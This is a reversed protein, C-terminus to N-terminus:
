LGLDSIDEGIRILRTLMGTKQAGAINQESDDIFLTESPILNKEKLVFDFIEVDPKRLGIQHSYYEKEFINEWKELLNTKKLIVSFQAHHIENTNSLLFLRYKKKLKEMLAIRQPPFDLLMACWARNIELDTIGAPLLRKLEHRFDCAAIKGMEFKDFLHSQRAQSYLQDFNNVGLNKFADITLNYDINILVGGLDFIINKM